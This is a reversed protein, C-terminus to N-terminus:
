IHQNNSLLYCLFCQPSYPSTVKVYFLQLVVAKKARSIHWLQSAYHENNMVLICILHPLYVQAKDKHFPFIIPISQASTM